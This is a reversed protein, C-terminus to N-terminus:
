HAGYHNNNITNYLLGEGSLFALEQRVDEDSVTCKTRLTTVITQFPTGKPLSGTRVIAIIEQQLSSLQPADYNQNYNDNYNQNYNQDYGQNDYNQNSYNQNYGGDNYQQNQQSGGNMHYLHVYICELIHHTVENFNRIPAIRWCNVMKKDAFIRFNGFFKAYTFQEIAPEERQDDNEMMHWKKVSIRGSGDEIELITANANREVKMVMGVVAINSLPQGDVFFEGQGQPSASLLQKITVPTM